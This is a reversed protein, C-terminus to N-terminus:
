GPTRSAAWVDVRSAGARLLARAAEAVTSGTTIVDDVLALHRDSVEATCIFAGRVNRSRGRADLGSQPQTPRVRALVRPALPLDLHRALPRAIELSQNFGRQRLRNRHLPVPVLAQPRDAGSAIEALLAALLPAHGLRQAFKLGLVLQDAPPRYLLGAICAQYPPPRRRCHGCVPPAAPPLPRACRRCAHAARPLDAACGPCLDLGPTGAGGCVLCRPPWLLQPIIAFKFGSVM